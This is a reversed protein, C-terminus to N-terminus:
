PLIDELDLNFTFKILINGEIKDSKREFGYQCLATFVVVLHYYGLCVFFHIDYLNRNGLRKRYHTWHAELFNVQWFFITHKNCRHNFKQLSWNWFHTQKQSPWNPLFSHFIQFFFTQNLCHKRGVFKKYYILKCLQSWVIHKM